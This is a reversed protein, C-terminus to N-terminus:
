AKRGTIVITVNAGSGGVVFPRVFKPNDRIVALASATISSLAAGNGDKLTVPTGGLANIGEIQVAGTGFTGYVHVTKDPYSDSGEWSGWDGNQLNAWTIEMQGRSPYTTIGKIEM